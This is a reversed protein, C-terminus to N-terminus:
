HPLLSNTVVSHSFLLLLHGSEKGMEMCVHNGWSIEKRFM